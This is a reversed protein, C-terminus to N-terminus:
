GRSLQAQTQREVCVERRAADRSWKAPAPVLDKRERLVGGVLSDGIRLHKLEGSRLLVDEDGAVAAVERRERTLPCLCLPGMGAQDEYRGEIITPESLDVGADFALELLACGLLLPLADCDRESRLFVVAPM